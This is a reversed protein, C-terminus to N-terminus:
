KDSFGLNLREVDKESDESLSQKESTDFIGIDSLFAHIEDQDMNKEHHSHYTRQLLTGNEKYVSFDINNYIGSFAPVVVILKGIEYSRALEEETTLEEYLKEGPRAGTIKTPYNEVDHGFQPAIEKILVDALDGVRLIPMQNVFVEGGRMLTLAEIVLKASDEISMMFRSMERETITLPRGAKIQDIFRPIVSGNSMAVNGFRSSAFKTVERNTSLNNAATMIREGVFKTAGMLNTSNVAKDSSTFLVRRVGCKISASIVNEVGRVNTEIAAHPQRECYPVHKLAAAHFVYDIDQLHRVLHSENCIDVLYNNLRDSLLENELNWLATESNDLGRVEEAGLDLLQRCLELGVTGGAGTIACRKGKIISLDAKM